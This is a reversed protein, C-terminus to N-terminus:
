LNLITKSFEILLNVFVKPKELHVNHGCKEVQIMKVNSINDVMQLNIKSFKEDYKGTILLTPCSINKLKNWLPNMKGTGFENLSNILGNKSLRLKKEKLKQLKKQSLKKQSEFIELNMWHEVFKEIPNQMIFHALVSDKKIREERELKTQLGPNTSELILGNLLYPFEVAFSLAARGGLSYGILIIKEIELHRILTLIIQTIFNQSYYKPNLPVESLGFGPFDIAIKNFESPLKPLIENWDEACGTFGHLFILTPNKSCFNKNSTYNIKIKSLEFLMQVAM